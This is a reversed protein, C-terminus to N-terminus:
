DEFLTKQFRFKKQVIQIIYRGPFDSEEGFVALVPTANLASRMRARKENDSKSQCVQGLCSMGFDKVQVSQWGSHARMQAFTMAAKEFNKKNQEQEREDSEHPGSRYYGYDGVKYNVCDDRTAVVFWPPRGRDAFPAVAEKAADSFMFFVRPARFTLTSVYKKATELLEKETPDCEEILKTVALPVFIGYAEEIVGSLKKARESHFDGFGNADAAAAAAGDGDTRMPALRRGNAPKGKVFNAFAKEKTLFDPRKNAAM